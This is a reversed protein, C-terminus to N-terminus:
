RAPIRLITLSNAPAEYDFAPSLPVTTTQPVVAPPQGDPNVTDAPAGGFVIREATAPLKAAGALRVALTHPTDDGNVIKVILDGSRSDRVTSAALKTGARAPELTAPVLGDGSHHMFLQQVTYNLSPFVETANFYIMDPTWQTHGRRALLPAYSALQVVDGNREFSICGAAEAIASRLTNRRDQEHAAYEGAYVKPGNRDYGDYRALNNWFWSPARYFHEDVMAVNRERAFAWGADFDKGSPDPGVTGVVVIEPHHAVIADHIM